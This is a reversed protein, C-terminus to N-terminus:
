PLFPVVPDPRPPFSGQGGVPRGNVFAQWATPHPGLGTLYLASPAHLKGPVPVRMRVWIFSDTHGAVSPVLGNGAVPWARDDFNPDAWRPDDAYHYRVTQTAAQFSAAEALLPPVTRLALLAHSV